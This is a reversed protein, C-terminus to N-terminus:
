TRQEQQPRPTIHKESPDWGAYRRPAPKPAPKTARVIIYRLHRIKPASWKLAVPKRKLVGLYFLITTHDKRLFRGIQPSTYGCAKLARAIEIRVYCVKRIRCKNVIKEVAIGRLACTELIIARARPPMPILDAV